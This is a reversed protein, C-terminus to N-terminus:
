VAKDPLAAAGTGVVLDVSIVRAFGSARRADNDGFRRDADSLDVCTDVWEM